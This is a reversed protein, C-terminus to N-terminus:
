LLGASKQNVLIKWQIKFSSKSSGLNWKRWGMKSVPRACSATLACPSLERLLPTDPLLVLVGIDIAQIGREFM